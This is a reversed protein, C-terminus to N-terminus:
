VGLRAVTTAIRYANAMVSITVTTAPLSPFIAADVVHVRNWNPLRGLTDTELESPSHRMPLSGGVHNSKGPRGIQVLGPIPFMGLLRGSAALHRVLRRVREAGAAEDDGVIVVRGADRRMTLGPSETSHLYGQIVVLRGLLPQLLRELTGPALPLRNALASLMLDNYGYIQLHVSRESVRAADLEVFVQALTNGQTAVGVRVGRPTLMPMVFYQSDRLRRSIQAGGISDLMLRTSSIAGCAVFVRSAELCGTDVARGREHFDITVVDDSETLRDVYVGSRYDVQGSSVLAELTDSANYISGYPCGHLCMGSYRCADSRDASAAVALRSAGFNFGAEKLAASHTRLLRLITEAQPGHRLAAPSDTYLPLIEALEDYEGAVPM